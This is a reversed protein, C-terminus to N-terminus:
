IMSGWPKSCLCWYLIFHLRPKWTWPWIIGFIPWLSSIKIYIGVADLMPFLHSRLRRISLDLYYHSHSYFSHYACVMNWLGHIIIKTQFERYRLLRSHSVKTSCEIIHTDTGLCPTKSQIHCAEFEHGKCQCGLM